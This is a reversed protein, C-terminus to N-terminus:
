MRRMNSWDIRRCLVRREQTWYRNPNEILNGNEDGKRPSRGGQMEDGRPPMIQADIYKDYTTKSTMLKQRSESIVTLITGM